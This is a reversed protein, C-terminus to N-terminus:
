SPTIQSRTGTNEGSLENMMQDFAAAFRGPSPDDYPFYLSPEILELEMIAPQRSDLRAVDARAYLTQFPIARM